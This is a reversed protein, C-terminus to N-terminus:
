DNGNNAENGNNNLKSEDSNNGEDCDDNNAEDSNGEQWEQALKTLNKMLTPMLAKSLEQLARPCSSLTELLRTSHDDVM